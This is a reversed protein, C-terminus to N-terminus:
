IVLYLSRNMNTFIALQAAETVSAGAGGTFGRAFRRLHEDLILVLQARETNKENYKTWDKVGSQLRLVRCVKIEFVSFGYGQLFYFNHCLQQMPNYQIYYSLYYIHQGQFM